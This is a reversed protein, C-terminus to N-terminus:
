RANPRTRVRHLRWRAAGVADVGSIELGGLKPLTTYHRQLFMGLRRGVLAAGVAAVGMAAVRRVPTKRRRRGGLVISSLAGAVLAGAVLNTGCQPSIALEEQGGDLRELAEEAAERVLDTSDPGFIHFGGGTSYGALPPNAGRGLLVAVTAHELAHNRRIRRFTERM